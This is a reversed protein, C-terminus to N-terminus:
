RYHITRAVGLADERQDLVSDLSMQVLCEGFVGEEV